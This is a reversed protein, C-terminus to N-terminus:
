ENKLVYKVDEAQREYGANALGGVLPTERYAVSYKGTVDVENGDSYRAAGRRSFDIRKIRDVEVFQSSDDPNEIRKLETERRAEFFTDRKTV